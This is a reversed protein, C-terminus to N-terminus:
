RRNGGTIQTTRSTTNDVIKARQCWPGSGSSGGSARAGFKKNENIINLPRALGTWDDGCQGLAITPRVVACEVRVIHFKLHYVANQDTEPLRENRHNRGSPPVCHDTKAVSCKVYKRFATAEVPEIGVRRIADRNGPRSRRRSSRRSRSTFLIRLPRASCYRAFRRKM